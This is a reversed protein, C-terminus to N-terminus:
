FPCDDWGETPDAHQQPLPLSGEKAKSYSSPDGQQGHGEQSGLLLLERGIIKTSYRTEGSDTQWKDTKLAGEIYLKSGKKVYQEAIEAVKGFLAINHWETKEGEKSKFSTALSLNVVQGANTQRTEIKGVNGILLVKNLGRSM